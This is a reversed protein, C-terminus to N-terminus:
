RRRPAALSSLPFSVALDDDCPVSGRPPSPADDDDHLGWTVRLIVQAWFGGVPALGGCTVLGAVGCGMAFVVEEGVFGKEDRWRPIRVRIDDGPQYNRRRKGSAQGETVGLAQQKRRRSGVSDRREM